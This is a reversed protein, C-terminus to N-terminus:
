YLGYTQNVDFTFLIGNGPESIKLHEQISTVIAETVEAKALIMVIEKEPEIPMSFLTSTEHSGSGRANIVTAGRSGALNAADVVAEAKGREVVTIIARYMQDEGSEDQKGHYICNRGGLFSRVSTSFAMGHHPKKFELKTNLEELAKNAVDQEAIMLVIEKRVEYLGLLELLSSKVTGKGLFITGGTVGKEKALKIVKSGTGFNVVVCFLEIEKSESNSM